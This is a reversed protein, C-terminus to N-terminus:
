YNLEGSGAGDVADLDEYSKLSRGQVAERPPIGQPGGPGGMADPFQGPAMVAAAPHGPPVSVGAPPLRGGPGYMGHM